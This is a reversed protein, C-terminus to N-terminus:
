AHGASAALEARAAALNRTFAPSPTKAAAIDEALALRARARDAAGPGGEALDVRALEIEGEALRLHGADLKAKALALAEELVARAERYRGLKRM